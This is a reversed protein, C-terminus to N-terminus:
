LLLIEKEKLMKLLLEVVLEVVQDVVIQLLQYHYMMM